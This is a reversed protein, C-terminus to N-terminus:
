KIVYGKPCKPNVSKITKTLKGKYCKISTSVQKKNSAQTLKIKITPSSFTFGNASLYIWGNKEGLATTAVSTSGDSSIVSISGSVPANTFKYICRAVDSRIALNYTGKFVDGKSTLHPAAVKYELTQTSTNFTPPAGIYMTANTTVIGALKTSDKLCNSYERGGQITRLSWSTPSFTAKDGIVNIWALIEKFSGEDYNYIGKLISYPNGDVLPQNTGDDWGMGNEDAGDPDQAYLKALEAPFASKKYYAFIGPVKTPKGTVTILQDGDDASDIKAEVDTLRGHLWGTVITSLKITLGFNVDTPLSWSILCSNTDMQVCPPQTNTGPNFCGGTTHATGFVKLGHAKWDNEPGPLRCNVAFKSVAFIGAQFNGIRFRTEKFDKSGSMAVTVLYSTGGGHPLEPIDVLFSTGGNPLNLKSNGKYIYPLSAPYNELYNVQYTKGSDNRASVSSVCDHTNLNDCRSLVTDFQLYKDLECGSEGVQKCTVLSSIEDNATHSLSDKAELKVVPNRLASNDQVYLATYRDGSPAKPVVFQEDPIDVAMASPFAITTLAVASILASFCVKRLITM